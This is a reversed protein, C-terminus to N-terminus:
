IFMEKWCSQHYYRRKNPVTNSLRSVVKEGAQIPKGCKVCIFQYGRSELIRKKVETLVYVNSV